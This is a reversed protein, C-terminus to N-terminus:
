FWFNVSIKDFKQFIEASTRGLQKTEEEQFEGLRCILVMDIQITSVITEILKAKTAPDVDQSVTKSRLIGRQEVLMRLHIDINDIEIKCPNSKLNLLSFKEFTKTLHCKVKM